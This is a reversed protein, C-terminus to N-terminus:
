DLFDRYRKEWDDIKKLYYAPDYPDTFADYNAVPRARQWDATQGKQRPGIYYAVRDGTKPLPDLQLAVEFAARRQKKRGAEVEARYVEPNQSLNESRALRAVPIEQRRIGDRLDQALDVPSQESVGLCYSILRDTLERLFPETGRSRLASGRITIREGDYLAYNKAKYCFMRLYRGGFELDIGQPLPESVAALLGEPDDWWVESTLYIGDTDAELVTCGREQFAAILSQLLKRGRRTVEAALDTDAFRAGSFGLYGYFSNILIKYSQQRAEYERRAESDVAERTRKKWALRYERIARLLPIFAGLEDPEPNRGIQLLLSPYLSAVDYHLVHSFVGTEYSRAFGGEFGRVEAYGQPLSHRETYYRELMLLDVKHASGRLLIEQLEMPFDACQAFYTPLLMESLARTERLDDRLYRRFRERDSRFAAAIADGAIYTREEGEGGEGAGADIGFHRALAKLGYSPLERRSVDWAQIALWTDFVARGALDCRQFDVWREAFRLRSKRFRADIGFRGWACRVRFRRCRRALYALDFNFLNHGEIVDPDLERLRQGFRNLLQRESADSEEELELIEAGGTWSAQLGIALVRDGPQAPDPFAGSDSATEIDIQLRRLAGFPVGNFLRIGRAMLFQSELSRVSETPIGGDQLLRRYEDPGDCHVLWPFRGKGTLREVRDSEPPVACWLFPAFRAQRQSSGDPSREALWAEGSPSIWVGCLVQKSM